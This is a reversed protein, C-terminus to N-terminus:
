DPKVEPTATSDLGAHERLWAEASERDRFVGSGIASGTYAQWMRALGYALDQPGVVAILAGPSLEGATRDKDALIRIHSASVQLDDVDTLDVLQYRPSKGGFQGYIEDASRMLDEGRLTGSALILVGGDSQYIIEAAM